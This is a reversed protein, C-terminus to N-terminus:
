KETLSNIMAELRAITQQRKERFNKKGDVYRKLYDWFAATMNSENITFVTTPYSDRAVIVGLDEKVSILYGEDESSEKIYVHYNEYYRLLRVINQLHLRFEEATYFVDQKEWINPYTLKVKGKNVSKVDPLRIIDYVRNHRLTKEGMAIRNNHYNLIAESEVTALRRILREAAALPLTNISLANTKTITDAAQKEFTRLTELYESFNQATFVRLLPRCFALYGQYEQVFSQIARNDRILFNAATVTNSEISSSVVAATEPAIFLTRKYTTDRLKPFYYPEIAGTMYIPVWGTIAALMENIDRNINHIIKIKNGKAIVQLLLSSWRAIFEKDETLWSLNEDSFLLLKQPKPQRLVLVLFELVAQRKGDDGYYVASVPAPSFMEEPAPVEKYHQTKNFRFNILSNLFAEASKADDKDEQTLWKAIAKTMAEEDTLPFLPQLKLVDKLVIGQHESDCHCAFYAAMALVYNEERAPRREGRRLRSIHSPDLSTVISLATNTTKTLRMLFDLKESFLM